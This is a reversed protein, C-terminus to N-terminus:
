DPWNLLDPLSDDPATAEIRRISAKRNELIVARNEIEPAHAEIRDRWDRERGRLPSLGIGRTAHGIIQGDSM